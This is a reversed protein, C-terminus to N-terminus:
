DTHPRDIAYLVHRRIPHGAPLAPHDFDGNEVRTMGIKEMVRQSSRNAPITFAYLREEGLVNFAYDRCASAAEVALGQGWLDRPLRWGLEICPTFHAEFSPRNLGTMGAFRGDKKLELAFLGWGNAQMKEQIRAVMADSEARTLPAPFHRMTEADDNLAAFPALDSERWPRLILRDTELTVPAPQRTPHM